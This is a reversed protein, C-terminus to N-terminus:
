LSPEAGGRVYQFSAISVVRTAGLEPEVCSNKIGKPANKEEARAGALIGAM